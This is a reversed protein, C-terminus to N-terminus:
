QYGLKRLFFLGFAGVLINPTWAALIPPLAHSLGLGMGVSLLIYYLVIVVLSIGLGIASSSRHPRLGVSAGLISFILCAFPLAFKLHFNMEDNIPDQGLKKQLVISRYLEISNMEEVKKRRSTLDIPNLVIDVTEHAFQVVTIRRSDDRPFSHMIGDNFQWGGEDLWEGDKARILRILQGSEFEAVTVNKMLGKDLSQVNLIRQPVGDKYETFNINQQITPKNRESYTQMLNEGSHSARPVVVENFLITICSIALGSIIIPTVLRSFSVGGARFALIEGDSSLRGFALITSLLTSMPFSLVVVYPIKYFFLQIFQILPIQYRIVDGVLAFLVTSGALISTFAAIGFLFPGILEKLLYRDVLKIV